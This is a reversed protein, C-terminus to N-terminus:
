AKDIRLRDGVKYNELDGPALELVYRAPRKPMYALRWRRALQVDVVNGASDIWVVALDMLVGLMHIAADLRSERRQVLLLGWHDPLSRRFSLGRLQCMFSACYGARVPEVQTQSLNHIVVQQM